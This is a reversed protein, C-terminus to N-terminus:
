ELSVSGPCFSLGLNRGAYFQNVSAPVGVFVNLTCLDDNSIQLVSKLYAEAELRSQAIPEKELGIAFSGNKENFIIGFPYPNENELTTISFIGAGMDVTKPLSRPDFLFVERQSTQIKLINTSSAVERRVGEEQVTPLSTPNGSSEQPTKTRIMYLMVLVVIFLVIAGLAIVVKKEHPIHKM